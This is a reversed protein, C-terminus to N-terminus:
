DHLTMKYTQITINLDIVKLWTTKMCKRDGREDRFTWVTYACHYAMLPCCRNASGINLSGVYVFLPTKSPHPTEGLPVEYWLTNGNVSHTAWTSVWGSSRERFGDVKWHSLWGVLKLRLEASWVVGFFFVGVCEATPIVTPNLLENTHAFSWVNLSYVKM